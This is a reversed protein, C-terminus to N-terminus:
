PRESIFEWNEDYRLESESDNSSDRHEIEIDYYVMGAEVERDVDDIAYDPYDREIQSIVNAPVTVDDMLQSGQQSDPTAPESVEERTPQQDTQAEQQTTTQDSSEDGVNYETFAYVAVGGIILAVAVLAILSTKSINM